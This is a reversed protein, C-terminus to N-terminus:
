SQRSLFDRTAIEFLETRSVSVFGHCHEDLALMAWMHQDFELEHVISRAIDQRYVRAIEEVRMHSATPAINSVILNYGFVIRPKKPKKPKKM